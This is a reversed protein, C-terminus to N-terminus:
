SVDEGPNGTLPVTYDNDTININDVDAEEFFASRARDEPNEIENSLVYDQFQLLSLMIIM